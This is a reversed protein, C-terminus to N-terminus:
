HDTLPDKCLHVWEETCSLMWVHYTLASEFGRMTMGKQEMHNGGLVGKITPNQM